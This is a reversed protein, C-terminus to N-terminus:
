PTCKAMEACSKADVRCQTNLAHGHKLSNTCVDECTAGKPTNDGEPCKLNRANQCFNSCASSKVPPKPDLISPGGGPEIAKTTCGSLAVVLLLSGIISFSKINM